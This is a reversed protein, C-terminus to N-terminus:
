FFFLNKGFKEKGVLDNMQVGKENSELNTKIKGKSKTKSKTEKEISYFLKNNLYLSPNHFISDNKSFNKELAGFASSAILSSKKKSLFM